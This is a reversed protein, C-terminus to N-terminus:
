SAPKKGKEYERRPAAATYGFDRFVTAAEESAAFEAFRAAAAPDGSCKLTAITVRIQGLDHIKKTASTIADVGPTPLLRAEIPITDLDRRRLFAVANWVVAVDANGTVVVNAAQSGQRFTQLNTRTKLKEFDVGAKRFIVPLVYGLTSHEYDTLAVALDDRTLETVDRIGKPNGKRVVLVPTLAAITWADEGLGRDMLLDVFPDHCVYLDGEKQGEIFALLQGSDASNIEVKAGTRKEYRAVIEDFAPKM